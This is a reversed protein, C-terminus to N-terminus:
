PSRAVALRPGDKVGLAPGRDAMDLALLWPRKAAAASTAASAGSSRAPPPWASSPGLLRESPWTSSGKLPPAAGTRTTSGQDPNGGLTRATWEAPTAWIVTCPSWVRSCISRSESGAPSSSRGFLSLTLSARRPFQRSLNLRSSRSSLRNKSAAPCISPPVALVVAITAVGAPAPMMPAVIAEVGTRPRRRTHQHPFESLATTFKDATWARM